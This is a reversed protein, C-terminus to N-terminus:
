APAREELVLDGQVKFDSPLKERLEHSNLAFLPSIEIRVAPEGSADRPVAIGAEELWRAFLRIMDRRATEPSDLGEANKVPSYEESRSAELFVAREAFPLADFVFMEFKYANPERPAVRRGERDLHPVKKHAIHLPFKGAQSVVRRVFSVNYCHEAISGAWYRLEGDPTRAEMEERTLDSYEIVAFRGDRRGVVGLKEYPDRKRIVKLSMEANELLHFGLFVPDCLRILPNDVQFHYLVEVGRAELQDLVGSRVLAFLVGGHGNPSEFVRWKEELLLKGDPDLAPITDQIFFLVQDSPLGFYQKEAFFTRTPLDTAPSTMIAWPVPRGYKRSIARIKEAHYQFLSRETVPGIPFTGKPQGYGLRTAQGGAVLVAAVKGQRLAEEGTARAQERKKWDEDSTPLAIIDVPELEGARSEGQLHRRLLDQLQSVLGLDIRSLQQVLEKRQAATLEDWFRFVHSQGAREYARRLEAIRAQDM